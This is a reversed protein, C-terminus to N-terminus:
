EMFSLCNKIYSKMNQRASLKSLGDGWAFKYIVKDMKCTRINRM